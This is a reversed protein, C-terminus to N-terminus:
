ESLDAHEGYRQATEGLRCKEAEGSFGSIKESFRETGGPQVGFPIACCWRSM